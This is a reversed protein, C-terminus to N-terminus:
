CTELQRTVLTLSLLWMSTEEQHQQCCHRQSCSPLNLDHPAHGFQGRHEVLWRPLFNVSADATQYCRNAISATWGQLVRVHKPTGVSEALLALQSESREPAQITGGQPEGLHRGIRLNKCTFSTVQGLPQKIRAVRNQFLQPSRTCM